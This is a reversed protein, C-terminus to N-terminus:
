WNDINGEKSFSWALLFMIGIFLSVCGIFELIIM